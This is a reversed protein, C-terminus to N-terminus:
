WFQLLVADAVGSTWVSGCRGSRWLFWLWVGGFWDVAVRFWLAVVLMGLVLDWSSVWVACYLRFAVAYKAAGNIGDV